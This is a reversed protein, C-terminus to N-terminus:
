DEFIKPVKFYGKESVPANSLLDDKKGKKSPRDEKWVNKIDLVHSM